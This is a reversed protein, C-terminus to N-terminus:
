AESGAVIWRTSHAADKKPSADKYGTQFKNATICPHFAIDIM